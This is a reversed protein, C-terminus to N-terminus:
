DGRPELVPKRDTWWAHSDALASVLWGGTLRVFGTASGASRAVFGAVPEQVSLVRSGPREISGPAAGRPPRRSTPQCFSAIVKPLWLTGTPALQQLRPLPASPRM